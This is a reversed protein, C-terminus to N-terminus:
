ATSNAAWARLPPVASDPVVLTMAGGHPTDLRVEVASERTGELPPRAAGQTFAAGGRPMRVTPVAGDPRGLSLVGAATITLWAPVGSPDLCVWIRGVTDGPAIAFAAMVGPDLPATSAKSGSVSKVIAYIIAGLGGLVVVVFIVAIFLQGMAYGAGYASM